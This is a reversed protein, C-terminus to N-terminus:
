LNFSLLKDIFDVFFMILPIVMCHDRFIKLHRCLTELSLKVKQLSLLKLFLQLNFMSEVLEFFLLKDRSLVAESLSLCVQIFLQLLQALHANHVFNFAFVKDQVALRFDSLEPVFVQILRLCLRALVLLPQFLFSLLQQIFAIISQM